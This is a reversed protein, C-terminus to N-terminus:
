LDSEDVIDRNRAMYPKVQCVRDRDGGHFARMSQNEPPHIIIRAKSAWGRCATHFFSDAGVCDGHHVETPKKDKIIDQIKFMQKETLRHRTGTFGLSLRAKVKIDLVKLEGNRFQVTTEATCDMGSSIDWSKNM